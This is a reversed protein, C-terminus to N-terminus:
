IPMKLKKMTVGSIRADSKKPHIMFRKRWLLRMEAMMAPPTKISIAAARICRTFSGRVFLMWANYHTASRETKRGNHNRQSPPFHDRPYAVMARMLSTLAPSFIPPALRAGGALPFLSRSLMIGQRPFYRRSRGGDMQFLRSANPRTLSQLPIFDMEALSVIGTGISLASLAVVTIGSSGALRRVVVGLYELLNQM